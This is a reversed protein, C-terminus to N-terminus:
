TSFDKKFLYHCSLFIKQLDKFEYFEYFYNKFSRQHNDCNKATTKYLFDLIFSRSEEIFDSTSFVELLSRIIKM